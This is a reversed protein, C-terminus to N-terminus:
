QGNLLVFTDTLITRRVKTTKFKPSAFEHYSKPSRLTLRRSYRRTVKGFDGLFYM